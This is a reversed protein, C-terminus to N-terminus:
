RLPNQTRTMLREIRKLILKRQTGKSCFDDAGAALLNYETDENDIATLILVPLDRHERSARVVKLFEEGSMVPMMLDCVVLQTQHKSLKELAIRGNEATVVDYGEKELIAALIERQDDDDEVVLLKPEEIPQFEEESTITTRAKDDEFLSDGISNLEDQLAKENPSEEAEQKRWTISSLFAANIRKVVRGIEALNTVQNQVNEFGDELLSRVGRRYAKETLQSLTGRRLLLQRLDEDFEVISSLCTKGHYGQQHCKACGKGSREQWPESPHFIEPFTEWQTPTIEIACSCESCVRRVPSVICSLRLASFFDRVADQNLGFIGAAEFVLEFPDDEEIAIVVLREQSRQFAKLLEEESKPDWCLIAEPKLSLLLGAGDLQSYKGANALLLGHEQEFLSQLESAHANRVGTLDLIGQPTNWVIDAFVFSDKHLSKLPFFSTQGRSLELAVGPKTNRDELFSGWDRLRGLIVQRLAAWQSASCEVKTPAASDENFILDVTESSSFTVSLSSASTAQARKIVKLFFSLAATSDTSNESRSCITSQHDAPSM